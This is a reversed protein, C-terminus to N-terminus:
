VQCALQFINGHSSPRFASRVTKIQQESTTFVRKSQGVPSVFPISDSLNEL